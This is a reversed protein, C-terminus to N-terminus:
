KPAQMRKSAKTGLLAHQGRSREPALRASNRRGEPWGWGLPYLTLSEADVRKNGERPEHGWRGMSSAQIKLEGTPHTQGDEISLAEQPPVM